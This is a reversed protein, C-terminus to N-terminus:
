KRKDYETNLLKAPTKVLEPWLKAADIRDKNPLSELTQGPKLYPQQHLYKM